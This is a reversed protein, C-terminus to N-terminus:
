QTEIQLHLHNKRMEVLCDAVMVSPEVFVILKVFETLTETETEAFGYGFGPVM